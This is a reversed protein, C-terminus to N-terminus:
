SKPVGFLYMGYGLTERGWRLYADMWLRRQTLREQLVSSTTEQCAKRELVRQYAWEFEDWEEHSSTWAGLPILGMKQGVSVNAAHTQEDPPFEGILSRYEPTAPRKMYAEGVLLQGGPNVWRMMEQLARPYAESGLTFAHTAGLCIAVDFTHPELTRVDAGEFRVQSPGIGRAAARRNAEEILTPSIDFGTGAISFREHLRLLVEGSGCGFDIATQGAHLNFASFVASMKKEGVPANWLLEIM